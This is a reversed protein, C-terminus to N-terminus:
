RGRRSGNPELYHAEADAVKDIYERAGAREIRAYNAVLRALHDSALLQDPLDPVLLQWVEIGYVRAIPQLKDLSPAIGRAPDLWNSISTQAIGSRRSLEAQSTPLNFDAGLALLRRLNHALARTPDSTM